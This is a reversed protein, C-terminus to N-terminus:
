NRMRFVRTMIGMVDCCEYGARGNYQTSLSLRLDILDSVRRVDNLLAADATNM